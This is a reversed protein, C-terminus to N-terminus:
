ITLTQRTNQACREKYGESSKEAIKGSIRARGRITVNIRHARALLPQRDDRIWLPFSLSLGKNDRWLDFAGVGM